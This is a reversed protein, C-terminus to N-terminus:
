ERVFAFAVLKLLVTPGGGWICGGLGGTEISWSGDCCRTDVGEFTM